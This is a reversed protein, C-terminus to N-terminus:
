VCVSPAHPVSDGTSSLGKKRGKNLCPSLAETEQLQFEEERLVLVGVVFVSGALFCTAARGVQLDAWLCSVSGPEFM